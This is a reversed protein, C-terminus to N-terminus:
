KGEKDSNRPVLVASVNITASCFLAGILGTESVEVYSANTDNYIVDVLDCNRSDAYNTIANQLNALSVHDKFISVGGEISKKESNWRIDGSCIPIQWLIYFGTSEIFVVESPKRDTGNLKVGDLTSYSTSTITACGNVLLVFAAILILKFIYRM